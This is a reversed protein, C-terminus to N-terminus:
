VALPMSRYEKLLARLDHTARRRQSVSGKFTTEVQHNLADYVRYLRDTPVSLNVDLPRSGIRLVHVSVRDGSEVPQGGLVYYCSTECHSRPAGM